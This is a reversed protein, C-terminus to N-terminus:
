NNVEEGKKIYKRMFEAEAEKCFIVLRIATEKGPGYKDFLIDFITCTDTTDNPDIEDHGLDLLFKLEKITPHWVDIHVNCRGNHELVSNTLKKLTGRNM